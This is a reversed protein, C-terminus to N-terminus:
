ISKESTNKKVPQKIAIKPRDDKIKSEEILTKKSSSIIEGVSDIGPISSKHKMVESTDNSYSSDKDEESFSNSNYSTSDDLVFVPAEMTVEKFYMEYGMYGVVSLLILVIAASLLSYKIWAPIKKKKQEKEELLQDTPIESTSDEIGYKSPKDGVVGDFEFESVRGDSNKEQNALKEEAQSDIFDLKESEKEQKRKDSRELESQIISKLDGDLEIEPPQEQPKVPRYSNAKDPDDFLSGEFESTLDEASVAEEGLDWDDGDAYEEAEEYSDFNDDSEEFLDPMQESNSEEKQTRLKEYFESRQNDPDPDEIRMDDSFGFSPLEGPYEDLSNLEFTTDNQEFAEFKGVQEEPNLIDSSLDAM